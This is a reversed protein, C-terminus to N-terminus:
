SIKLEQIRRWVRESTLPPTNMPVGAGALANVVAAPIAM